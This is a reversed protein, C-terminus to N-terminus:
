APAPPPPATLAELDALGFAQEIAAIRRLADEYGDRGFMRHELDEFQETLEHYQRPSIAAKWAPFILTDEIAAHHEYMRVFATLAEAFPAAAASAISGKSAVAAIYDTIQRGREHQSTLTRALMAHQGGTRILPPFVHQEELSREHYDEGFSRFLSATRGLQEVPVEGQGSTLRTAAEAYVLLARRLVGHERMLDEAAPVEREGSEEERDAARVTAVGSAVGLAAAGALVVWRRRDINCSMVEEENSLPCRGLSAVDLSCYRSGVTLSNMSAAM